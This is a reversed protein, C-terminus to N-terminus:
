SHRVDVEKSIVRSSLTEMRTMGDKRLVGGRATLWLRAVVVFWELSRAGAPLGSEIIRLTGDAATDPSISSVLGLVLIWGYRFSADPEAAM